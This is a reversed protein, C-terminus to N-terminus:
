KHQKLKTRTMSGKIKLCQLALNIYIMPNITKLNIVFGTTLGRNTEETIASM